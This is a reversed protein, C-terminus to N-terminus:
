AWDEIKIKIDLDGIDIKQMLRNFADVSEGVMMVAIDTGPAICGELEYWYNAPHIEIYERGLVNQLLPVKRKNHPSNYFVIPYEGAQIIKHTNELTFCTFLGNVFLVGFTNDPGSPERILRINIM